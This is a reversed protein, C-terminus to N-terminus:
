SKQLMKKFSNLNLNDLWTQMDFNKWFQFNGWVQLNNIEIKDLFYVVEQNFGCLDSLDSLNVLEAYTYLFDSFISIECSKQELVM